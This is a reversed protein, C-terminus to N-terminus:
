GFLWRIVADLTWAAVALAVMFGIVIFVLIM